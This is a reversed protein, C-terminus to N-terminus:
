WNWNRIPIELIVYIYQWPFKKFKQKLEKYTDRIYMSFKVSSFGTPQKLEKYTDRINCLENFTFPVKRLNWNRIPIELIQRIYIHLNNCCVLKLEKYTDRIYVEFSDIFASRKNNWNRIPIELIYLDTIFFYFTM